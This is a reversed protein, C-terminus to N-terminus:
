LIVPEEILRIRPDPLKHIIKVEGAICSLHAPVIEFWGESLVRHTPWQVGKFWKSVMLLAKRLDEVVVGDFVGEM